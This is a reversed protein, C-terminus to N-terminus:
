NQEDGYIAIRLQERSTDHTATAEMDTLRLRQDNIPSQVKSFGHQGHFFGFISGGQNKGFLDTIGHNSRRSSIAGIFDLLVVVLVLFFPPSPLGVVVVVAVVVVDLVSGDVDDDAEEMGSVKGEEFVLVVAVVGGVGSGWAVYTSFKIQQTHM